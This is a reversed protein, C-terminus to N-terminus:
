KFIARERQLNRIGESHHLPFHRGAELARRPGLRENRPHGKISGDTVVDELHPLYIHLVSQWLQLVSFLMWPLLGALEM